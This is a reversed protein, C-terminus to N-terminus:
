HNSNALIKNAEYIFNYYKQSYDWEYWVRGKGEFEKMYHNSSVNKYPKASFFVKNKFNLKEFEISLNDNFYEDDSLKVICNNLNIRKLRKYWLSEAETKSHYHLFHIEINLKEIVGIPYEGKPLITYKSQEKKIFSLKENYICDFNQLLTIYDPSYIFLNVFPSSYPVGCNKYMFTGWCNNSIITINKNKLRHRNILVKIKYLYRKIFAKMNMM